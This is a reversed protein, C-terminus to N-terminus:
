GMSFVHSVPWIKLAAKLFLITKVYQPDLNTRKETVTLSLDMQNKIDSWSDYNPALEYYEARAESITHSKEYESFILMDAFWAQSLTPYKSGSLHKSAVEYPHLLEVLETVKEWDSSLLEKKEYHKLTYSENAEVLLSKYKYIVVKLVTLRKLLYFTFNWCTSVDQIVFLLKDWEDMQIQAELLFQKQKLSGSFHSVLDKCKKILNTIEPCGKLADNIALQLTHGFCFVKMISYKQELKGLCSKINSGNDITGCITKNRLMDTTFSVYCIENDNYTYERMNQLIRDEANILMEKLRDNSLINVRSDLGEIVRRFAHSQLISFSHLDEVILAAVNSDLRKQIPNNLSYKGVKNFKQVLTTQTSEPIVYFECDVGNNLEIKVRNSEVLARLIHHKNRLYRWLNSTTGDKKYKVRSCNKHRCIWFKVGDFKTVKYFPKVPSGNTKTTKSQLNETLFQHEMQLTISCQSLVESGDLSDTSDALISSRVNEIDNDEHTLVMNDSCEKSDM